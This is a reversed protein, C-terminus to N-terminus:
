LTENMDRETESQRRERETLHSDRGGKGSQLQLKEKTKRIQSKAM